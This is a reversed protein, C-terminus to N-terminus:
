CGVIRGNQDVMALDVGDGIVMGSRSVHARRGGDKILAKWDLDMFLETGGARIEVSAKKPSCKIYQGNNEIVVDGSKNQKIKVGHLSVFLGEDEFHYVASSVLQSALKKSKDSARENAYFGHLTFDYDLKAFVVQDAPITSIHEGNRYWSTNNKSQRTRSSSSIFMAQKLHSMSFLIGKKGFAIQKIRQDDTHRPHPPSDMMCAISNNTKLIKGRRHLIGLTKGNADCLVSFENPCVVRVTHDCLLEVVVDHKLLVAMTGSRSLHILPWKEM